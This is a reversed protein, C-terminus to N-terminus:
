FFYVLHSATEGPESHDIGINRASKRHKVEFDTCIQGLKGGPDGRCTRSTRSSIYPGGVHDGEPVSAKCCDYACGPGVLSLLIHHDVHQDDIVQWHHPSSEAHLQQEFRIDLHNTFCNCGSTTSISTFIGPISPRLAVRTICAIVGKLATTM